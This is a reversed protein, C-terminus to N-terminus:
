LVPNILSSILSRYGVASSLVQLDASTVPEGYYEISQLHGNLYNTGDSGLRAQTVTPITAAGDLVPAGSNISAACANAVWTGTLRYATNAAIAGADIQAQPAGGDVIYLEPNTTNGRLAIIENATNDDFQVLPRIGSVTSPTGQALAGGKGAQWFDSFNTGTIIAVDANRTVTSAVTPIYSTATAGLEVQAGWFYAGSTGNGTYVNAGGSALQIFHNTANNTTPTATCTCRRWGNGADTITATGTGTTVTATLAVLDFIGTVSVGYGGGGMISAVQTREKAKAYFSLTTPAGATVTFPQFVGHTATATNEVITDATLTNDPATITNASVSANGYVWPRTSGADVTNRWDESYTFGNTRAEEILLGRCILTVPSFDFRPTDATMTEIFGSANVRTATAGSRTFTIRPDLSATTFDLALRPLVRETATLAFSPTIM